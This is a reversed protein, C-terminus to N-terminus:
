ARARPAYAIEARTESRAHKNRRVVRTTETEDEEEEEEEEEEDEEEEKEKEDGLEDLERPVNKIGFRANRVAHRLMFEGARPAFVDSATRRAMTAAPDYHDNEAANPRSLSSPYTDVEEEEEEEESVGRPFPKSEDMDGARDTRRSKRVACEGVGGNAVDSHFQPARPNQVSTEDASQAVPRSIELACRLRRRMPQQSHTPADSADQHSSGPADIRLSLNQPQLTRGFSSHQGVHCPLVTRRWVYVAHTVARLDMFNADSEDCLQQQQQQQQMEEGEDTGSHAPPNSSPFTRSLRATTTDSHSTRPGSRAAGPFGRSFVSAGVPSGGRRAADSRFLSASRSEASTEEPREARSVEVGFRRAGAESSMGRAVAFLLAAARADTMHSVVRSCPVHTRLLLFREGNTMAAFLLWCRVWRRLLQKQHESTIHRARTVGFLRQALTDEVCLSPDSFRLDDTFLALYAHRMFQAFDRGQHGVRLVFLDDGDEEEEEEDEGREEKRENRVKREEREQKRVVSGYASRGSQQTHSEDGWM